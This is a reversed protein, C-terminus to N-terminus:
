AHLRIHLPPACLVRGNRLYRRCFAGRASLPQQLQVDGRFAAHGGNRRRAGAHCGFARLLWVRLRRAKGFFRWRDEISSWRAMLGQLISTLGYACHLDGFMRLFDDDCAFQNYGDAIDFGNSAAVVVADAQELLDRVRNIDADEM